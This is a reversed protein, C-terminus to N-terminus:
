VPHMMMIVQIITKNSVTNHPHFLTCVLIEQLLLGKIRRNNTSMIIALPLNKQQRLLPNLLFQPKLSILRRSQIKETNNNHYLYIQIVQIITIAIWNLLNDVTTSVQIIQHNIRVSFHLTPSTSKM